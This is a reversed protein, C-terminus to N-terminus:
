NIIQLRYTQISNGFTCKLLYTGARMGEVDIYQSNQADIQFSKVIQGQINILDIAVQGTRDEPFEIYLKNKVPNPYLNVAYEPGVVSIASESTDTSAETTFSITQKTLPVDYFNEVSDVTVFYDTEYELNQDPIIAITKNSNRMYASFSVAEGSASGSTFELKNMPHAIEENNFNRISDNFNLLVSDTLPVDVAEHEPDATFSLAQAYTKFTVSTPYFAANYETVLTETVAFYYTQDLELLTDPIVTFEKHESGMEFQCKVPEGSDDSVRLEMFSSPDTIPSGDEHQMSYDFHIKLQQDLAVNTEGQAPDFIATPAEPDLTTFHVSDPYFKMDYHNELTDIIAFYYLQTTDLESDPVVSIITSESNISGSFSVPEGAANNKRLEVISEVMDVPEDDVHRIPQDFTINLETEPDVDESGDQPSFDAVPPEIVITTFSTSDEAFLEGEQTQISDITIFYDTSHYLTDPDLYLMTSDANLEASHPVSSGTYSDKTFNVISSLDTIQGGGEKRVSHSFSIEIVKDMPVDVTGPSPDFSVSPATLSEMRDVMYIEKTSPNQIYIVIQSSDINIVNDIDQTFELTQSENYDPQGINYGNMGSIMYRMADPFETEGNGGPPTSYELDEVYVVWAKIDADTIKSFDALSRINFSIDLNNQNDVGGSFNIDFLGPRNYEHDIHDQNINAPSGQFQNGAIVANPVGTVGYYDVRANGQGNLDNFDYMPDTGPWSTHYAIHAVKEENDGEHMLSNFIPNQSACPGCSANTWHEVLMLRQSSEELLFIEKTITDDSADEDDQGNPGSVWVKLDNYNNIMATSADWVEDHVFDYTENSELSLGRLTDTFVTGNNVQWNVRITSLTATGQNSLTGQIEVPGSNVFTNMNITNMAGNYAPPESVVFTHSAESGFNGEGEAFIFDYAEVNYWGTSGLGDGYSDLITFTVEQGEPVAVVEDITTNDPYSGSSPGSGYTTSGDSSKLNWSIEEGYSDTHITITVDVDQAYVFSTIGLFLLCFFLTRM